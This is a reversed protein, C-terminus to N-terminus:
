PTPHIMCGIFLPGHTANFTRLEKFTKFTMDAKSKLKSGACDVGFNGKRVEKKDFKSEDLMPDDFSNTCPTSLTYDVLIDSFM